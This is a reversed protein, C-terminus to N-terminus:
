RKRLEKLIGGIRKLEEILPDEGYSAGYFNNLDISHREVVTREGFSYTATVAFRKPNVPKDPPPAFLELASQLMFNLEFDPAILDIQESFAPLNKLNRKEDGNQFFDSDIELKVNEAGSRGNNKIKLNLIKTNKRFYANIVIYPRLVNEAQLIIAAVSKESAITIRHTLWAYIATVLAILATLYIMTM